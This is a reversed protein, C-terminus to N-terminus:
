VYNVDASLSLSVGTNKVVAILEDSAGLVHDHNADFFLGKGSLSAVPSAGLVYDAATGKLQLKDGQSRTLDTV